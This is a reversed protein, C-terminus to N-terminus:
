KMILSSLPNWSATKNVHDVYCMQGDIVIHKVGVNPITQPPQIATIPTISIAHYHPPPIFYFNSKRDNVSVPKGSKLLLCCDYCVLVKEAEFVKQIDRSNGEPVYELYTELQFQKDFNKKQLSVHSVAMVMMM